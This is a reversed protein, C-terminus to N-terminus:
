RRRRKAVVRAAEDGVSERGGRLDGEVLGLESHPLNM